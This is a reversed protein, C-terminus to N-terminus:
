KFGTPTSKCIENWTPVFKVSNMHLSYSYVQNYKLSYLILVFITSASSRCGIFRTFGKDLEM